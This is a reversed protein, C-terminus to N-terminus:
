HSGPVVADGARDLIQADCEGWFFLLRLELLNTADPICGYAAKRDM